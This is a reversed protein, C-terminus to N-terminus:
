KVAYRYLRWPPPRNGATIGGVSAFQACFSVNKCIPSTGSETTMDDALLWSTLNTVSTTSLATAL